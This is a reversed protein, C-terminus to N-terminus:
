DGTCGKEWANLLGTSEVVHLVKSVSNNAFEGLKLVHHGQYKFRLV